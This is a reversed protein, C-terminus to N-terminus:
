AGGGEKFCNWGNVEAVHEPEVPETRPQPNHENEMEAIIECATRLHAAREALEAQLRKMEDAYRRLAMALPYVSKEVAVAWALMEAITEKDKSM